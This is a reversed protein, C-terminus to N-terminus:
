RGRYEFHWPESKVTRVFGFRRAHRRLWRRVRHDRVSLDIARGSEHPSYGPRAARRCGNCTCEVFCRYLRRQERFTRFGSRIELEVGDKQAATRMWTFFLAAEVELRVDAQIQALAVKRTRGRVHGEEIDVSVGNEVAIATGISSLGIVVLVGYM